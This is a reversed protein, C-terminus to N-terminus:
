FPLPENDPQEISLALRYRNISAALDLCRSITGRAVLAPTPLSRGEHDGEALLEPQAPLLANVTTELAVELIALLALEPAVGLQEIPPATVTVRRSIM